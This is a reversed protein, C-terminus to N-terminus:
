TQPAYHADLELGDIRDLRMIAPLRAVFLFRTFLSFDADTSLFSNLLKILVCILDLM